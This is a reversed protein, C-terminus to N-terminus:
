EKTKPITRWYPVWVYVVPALKMRAIVAPAEDGFWSLIEEKVRDLPVKDDYWAAESWFSHGQPTEEWFVASQLAGRDGDLAALLYPVTVRFYGSRGPPPEFLTKM